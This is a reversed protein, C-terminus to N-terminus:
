KKDTHRRLPYAYIREVVSRIADDKTAAEVELLSCIYLPNVAPVIVHWMRDKQPIEGKKKDIMLKDTLKKTIRKTTM